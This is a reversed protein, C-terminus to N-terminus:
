GLSKQLSPLNLVDHTSNTRVKPACQLPSIASPSLALIPTPSAHVRIPSLMDKSNVESDDGDPHRVDTQIGPDDPVADSSSVGEGDLSRVDTRIGPVDLPVVSVYQISVLSRKLILTNEGQLSAETSPFYCADEFFFVDITVFFKQTPPHYCKYGKQHTGYGVFVCQLAHADLNSRQNKPLHVFIVCGFVLASLTNLSPISVHTSLVELIIQGHLTSSPLRNMVHSTTLVAEGWLYKPIHSSLLLSHAMDLLHHNKRESVGNQEPTQPFTTQHIIGQSQFYAQFERNVFEGGNDSQFVKIHGNYQEQILM